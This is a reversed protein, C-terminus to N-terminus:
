QRVFHSLLESAPRVKRFDLPRRNAFKRQLLRYLQFLQGFPRLGTLEGLVDNPQLIQQRVERFHIYQWNDLPAHPM